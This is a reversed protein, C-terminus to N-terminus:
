GVQGILIAAEVIADISPSLRTDLKIGRKGAFFTVVDDIVAHLQEPTAPSQAPPRAPLCEALLRNELKEAELELTKIGARFPETAEGPAPRPGTKLETRITRLKKVIQERWPSCAEDLAGIEDATLLTRRKVAAFTAMMLLMVDVGVENQLTLCAEAVGPRAYLALAFAWSEAELEPKPASM